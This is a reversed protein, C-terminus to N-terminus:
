FVKVVGLTLNEWFIGQRTILCFPLDWFPHKLFVFPALNESFRIKSMSVCVFTHTDPPLFHEYIELINSFM